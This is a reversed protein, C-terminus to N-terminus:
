HKDYYISGGCSVAGHIEKCHLEGNEVHVDGEVNECVVNRGASVDGGVSACKVDGGADVSDGVNACSVGGGCGVDNGVDGCNVGGGCDVDNGVDGCNVGGGCDVNNGVDGCNVGGGCDVNNGVDGCNVGGGASVNGGIDGKIDASEWIEVTEVNRLCDDEMYLLIKIKPDYNDKKLLTSGKFQIIRLVNDDPLDFEKGIKSNTGANDGYFKNVPLDANNNVSESGRLLYDISVRMIDAIVPLLEIDPYSQACEWKSVAQVSIGLKESLQEQSMGKSKRLDRLTESFIKNDMPM